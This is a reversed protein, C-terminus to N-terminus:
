SQPDERYQALEQEVGPHGPAAEAAKELLSVADSHRGTAAYARSMALMVDVSPQADENFFGTLFEITEEPRGTHILLTGLGSLAPELGPDAELAKRFNEEASDLDGRAACVHAMNALLEPSEPALEMAEDLAGAAMDYEGNNFFMVARRNLDRVQSDNLEVSHLTLLEQMKELNERQEGATDSVTRSIEDVKEVTSRGMEDLKEELSERASGLRSEIGTVAVAIPGLKEELVGALDNGSNEMAEKIATELRGTTDGMAATVKELEDSLAKADFGESQQTGLSKTAESLNILVGDLGAVGDRITEINSVVCNSNDALSKQISEGTTGLMTGLDGSSKILEDLKESLSGLPAAIEQIGATGGPEASAMATFGTEIRDRLDAIGADISTLAAPGAEVTSRLEEVSARIGEVIPTLDLEPPPPAADVSESPFSTKEALESLHGNTQELLSVIGTLKEEMAASSAPDSPGAPIPIKEALLSLHGNTQELLTTIGALREDASSSLGTEMRELRTDIGQVSENLAYILKGIGTLLQEMSLTGEGDSREAM